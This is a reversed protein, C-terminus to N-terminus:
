RAFFFGGCLDPPNKGQQVGSLEFHARLPKEVM